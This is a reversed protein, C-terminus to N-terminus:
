AVGIGRELAVRKCGVSGGGWAVSYPQRFSGPLGEAFVFPSRRRNRLEEVKQPWFIGARNKVPFEDSRKRGRDGRSQASARDRNDQHTRVHCACLRVAM